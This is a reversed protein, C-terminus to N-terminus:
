SPPRDNHFGLVFGSSVAVDFVGLGHCGKILTTHTKLTIVDLFGICAYGATHTCTNSSRHDVDVNINYGAGLLPHWPSPTKSMATGITTEGHIRLFQNGTSQFHVQKALSFDRVEGRGIKLVFVCGAFSALLCPWTSSESVTAGKISTAHTKLSNGKLLRIGRGGASQICTKPGDTTLVIRAIVGLGSCPTGRVQLRRCPRASQLKVTSGSSNIGLRNSISRNQWLFTGCKVM